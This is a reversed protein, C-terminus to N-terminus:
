RSAEVSRLVCFENGEPDRMVEWHVDGQGIDARTAGLKVLREVEDEHSAIPSVDIHLRNKVTKGEPVTGFVITPAPPRARVKAKWDQTSEETWEDPYDWPAIEVLDDGEDIIKYDLVATWFAAMKRVDHADIVIETFRSTM